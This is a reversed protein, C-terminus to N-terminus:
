LCITLSAIAPAFPRNYKNLLSILTWIWICTSGDTSHKWPWVAIHSPLISPQSMESTCRLSSHAQLLASRHYGIMVRSKCRKYLIAFTPWIIEVHLVVNQNTSPQSFINYAHLCAQEDLIKLSPLWSGSSELHMVKWIRISAKCNCIDKGGEKETWRIQIQAPSNRAIM